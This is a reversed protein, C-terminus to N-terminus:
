FFLLLKYESQTIWPPIYLVFVKHFIHSNVCIKVGDIDVMPPANSIGSLNIKRSGVCNNDTAM